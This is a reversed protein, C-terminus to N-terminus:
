GFLGLPAAQQGSAMYEHAILEQYVRPSKSPYV